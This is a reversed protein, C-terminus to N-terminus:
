FMDEKIKALKDTIVDKYQVHLMHHNIQFLKQLSTYKHYTHNSGPCDKTPKSAYCKCIRCAGDKWRENIKIFTCIHNHGAM